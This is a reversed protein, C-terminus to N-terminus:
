WNCKCSCNSCWFAAFEILFSLNSTWFGAFVRSVAAELELINCIRGFLNCFTVIGDFHQVIWPFHFLSLQFPLKWSWFAAFLLSFKCLLLDLSIGAPGKQVNGLWQITAIFVLWDLFILCAVSHLSCRRSFFRINGHDWSYGNMKPEMLDM